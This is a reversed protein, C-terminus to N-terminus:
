GRVKRATYQLCQQQYKVTTAKKSFKLTSQSDDSHIQDILNYKPQQNATPEKTTLHRFNAELLGLLVASKRENLNRPRQCKSKPALKLGM